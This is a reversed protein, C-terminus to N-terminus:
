YPYIEITYEYADPNFVIVQDELNELSVLIVGDEGIIEFKRFIQKMKVVFPIASLENLVDLYKGSYLIPYHEILLIYRNSLIEISKKKPIQLDVLINQITKHWRTFNEFEQILEAKEDCFEYYVFLSKPTFNEIFITERKISFSFAEVVLFLLLIIAMKKKNKM